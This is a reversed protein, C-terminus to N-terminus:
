VVIMEHVLSNGEVRLLAASPGADPSQPDPDLVDEVQQGRLHGPLFDELVERIEFVFVDVGTELIRRGLSGM